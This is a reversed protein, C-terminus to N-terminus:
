RPRGEIFQKMQRTAARMQRRAYPTVLPSALKLPGRLEVERSRVIKTGNGVPEFTYRAVGSRFPGFAGSLALVHPPDWETVVFNVRTEFGLMVIRGQLTSGVGLSGPSTQRIGLLGRGFLRPNNFLDTQFAWVEDIPRDVVVSEEVHM